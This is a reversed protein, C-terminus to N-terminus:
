CKMERPSLRGHSGGTSGRGNCSNGDGGWPLNMIEEQGHM